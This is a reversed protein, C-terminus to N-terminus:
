KFDEAYVVNDGMDQLSANSILILGETEIRVECCQPTIYTIEVSMAIALLGM